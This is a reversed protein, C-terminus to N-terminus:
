SDRLRDGALSTAASRRQRKLLLQRRAFCNYIQANGGGGRGTFRRQLEQRKLPRGASFDRCRYRANKGTM